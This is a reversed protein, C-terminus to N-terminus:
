YFQGQLYAKTRQEQPNEFFDRADAQEVVQGMYM